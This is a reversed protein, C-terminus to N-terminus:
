WQIRSNETDLIEGPASTLIQGYVWELM